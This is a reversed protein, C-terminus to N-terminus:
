LSFAGDSEPFVSLGNASELRRRLNGLAIPPLHGLRQTVLRLAEDTHGELALLQARMKELADAFQGNRKLITSLIDLQDKIEPINRQRFLISLKAFMPYPSDPSTDIAKNITALALDYDKICFAQYQALSSFYMEAAKNSKSNQLSVLVQAIKNEKLKWDVSNILCKLLADAHFPNTPNDEYNRNALELASEYDEISVYLQVLERRARTATRTSEIAQLQRDIADAVKGTMRYYFGFLFNHEPGSIHQVETTFRRNKLRALSLCQFHRLERKINDELTASSALVQDALRIVDDYKRHQDYLEKMAKLFHSPILMRSPLNEGSALARQLSFLYDSADVEEPSYSKVFQQAHDLLIKTYRAPLGIRQRTVYDRITDNVRLYEKSSGLRECLAAGIFKHLVLENNPLDIFTALLTYSIFEFQSLLMLLELEDDNKIVTQVLAEAKNRNFDVLMPTNNKAFDIGETAILQVLFQVQEPYGTLVEKFYEFNDVSLDIKEFESLRKLLGIREKPSLEPVPIHLYNVDNYEAFDPRFRSALAFCLNNKGSTKQLIVKFWAAIKRDYGVLCGNDEILLFDKSKFVDECLFCALNLKDTLTGGLERIVDKKESYGLDYIKIVFDEISDQPTLVIHPPYYADSPVAVAKRIAHDLLTRRGISPIGSAIVCTPIKKDYDNFREEIAAIQEHRGVVIRRREAIRPHDLWSLERLRQEILRTGVSPRLVPRLNYSERMWDPIRIDQHTICSDIILPYIQKIRGQISLRNAELIETKVWESNLSSNSILLVFLDTVSLGSFIEDLTKLGIGFTDQDYIRFNSPLKNAIYQVYDAKDKSSHSLFAVTM